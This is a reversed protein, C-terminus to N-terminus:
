IDKHRTVRPFLPRMKSGEAWLLGISNNPCNHSLILPLGGGAFGFKLDTGGLATSSSENERDYHADILADLEPLSGRAIRQNEPFRQVILVKSDYGRGSCIKLLAESLRREATETAMYLVLIIELGQGAFLSCLPKSGDKFSSLFKGVKGAASGDPKERIYSVGSASFDDLLIVSRFVAEENDPQRGYIKALDKTLEQKLDDIRDETLEHSQRVQENRLHPNARRLIDTHSGDSLGLFSV